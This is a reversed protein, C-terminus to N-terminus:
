KRILHKNLIDYRKFRFENEQWNGYLRVEDGIEIPLRESSKTLPVKRLVVIVKTETQLHIETIHIYRHYYFRKKTEFFKIVKGTVIAEEVIESLKLWKSENERLEKASLWYFYLLIIPVLIATVM